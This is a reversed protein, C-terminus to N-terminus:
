KGECSILNVQIAASCSSKTFLKVALFSNASAELAEFLWNKALM